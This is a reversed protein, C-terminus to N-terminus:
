RDMERSSTTVCVVAIGTAASLFNQVGLALMQTLYSLTAEGGYGQWNTNSVFSIATNFSSDASVAPMAQPNLPLVAQLRQLAYVVLLGLVNFVLVALAYPKWGTSAGPDVGALKYLGAELVVLPSLWRPLRGEAVAAMWKGLPWGLGVLLALYVLLQIWSQSTM